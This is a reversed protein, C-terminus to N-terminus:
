WMDRKEFVSDYFGERVKRRGFMELPMPKFHRCGCVKEDMEEEEDELFAWVDKADKAFLELCSLVHNINDPRKREEHKWHKNGFCFVCQKRFNFVHKQSAHKHYFHGLTM